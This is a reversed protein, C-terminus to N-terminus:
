LSNVRFAKDLCRHLSGVKKKAIGLAVGKPAAGGAEQRKVTVSATRKDPAKKLTEPTKWSSVALGQAVGALGSPAPVNEHPPDDANEKNEM